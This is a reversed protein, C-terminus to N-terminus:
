ILTEVDDLCGENDYKMIDLLVVRDKYKKVIERATKRAELKTKIGDIYETNDYNDIDDLRYCVSYNM